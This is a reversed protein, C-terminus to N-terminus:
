APAVRGALSVGLDTLLLDEPTDKPSNRYIEIWPRWDSPEDQTPLWRRLREFGPGIGSYPGKVELLAYRGGPLTQRGVTEDPTFGGAIELCADYVQDQAPTVQPDHHGFGIGQGVSGALGQEEIWRWLATWAAPASRQYPGRRRVYAVTVPQLHEIRIDM